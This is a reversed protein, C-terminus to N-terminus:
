LFIPTENLLPANEGIMLRSVIRRSNFRQQHGLPWAKSQSDLIGWNWDQGVASAYLSLKTLTETKGVKEYHLSLASKLETQDM